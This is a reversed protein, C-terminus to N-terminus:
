TTYIIEYAIGRYIHICHLQVYIKKDNLAATVYYFIGIYMRSHSYIYAPIQM